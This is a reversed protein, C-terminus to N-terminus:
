APRYQMMKQHRPHGWDGIYESKWGNDTGFRSMRDRTYWFIGHDHPTDPNSVETQVENFTAYFAGDERMFRRLKAFCDEIMAPPLHTFLSQALVFDARESFKSFEFSSSIVFQPQKREITEQDLEKELGARVLDSEKEIGLYHAADLYPVFHSGARLSGCAIDLLYHHPKLGERVLFDFQLKGIEDWHGGM